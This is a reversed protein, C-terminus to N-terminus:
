ARMEALCWRERGADHIEITMGRPQRLKEQKRLILKM